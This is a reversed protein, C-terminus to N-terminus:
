RSEMHVSLLHLPSRNAESTSFRSSYLFAYIAHTSDVPLPTPFWWVILTLCAAAKFPPWQFRGQILGFLGYPVALMACAAIIAVIGDIPPGQAYASFATALGSTTALWGLFACVYAYVCAAQPSAGQLM